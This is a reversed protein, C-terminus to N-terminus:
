ENTINKKIFDILDDCDVYMNDNCDVKKTTYKFYKLDLDNCMNSYHNTHWIQTPNQVNLEIINTDQSSFLSFVLGGSNPSVIIQSEQFIKIKQSVTFDELNIIEFNHDRLKSEIESENVILRNKAGGNCRLYPSKNRSLIFKKKKFEGDLNIKSTLIKKLFFYCESDIKESYVEGHNEILEFGEDLLRADNSKIFKLNEPFLDIIESQFDLLNNEIDRIQILNLEQKKYFHRIGGIMYIM